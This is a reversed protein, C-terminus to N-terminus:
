LSREMAQKMPDIVFHRLQQRVYPRLISELCKYFGKLTIDAVITFRTGERVPEFRYEFHGDFRNKYEELEILNSSV